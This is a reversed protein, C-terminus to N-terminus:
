SEGRMGANLAQLRQVIAIQNIPQSIEDALSMAPKSPTTSETNQDQQM